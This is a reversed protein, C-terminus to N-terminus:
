HVRMCDPPSPRCFALIDLYVRARLIRSIGRQIHGKSDELRTLADPPTSLQLWTLQTAPAEVNHVPYVVLGVDPRSYDSLDQNVTNTTLVVLDSESFGGMTSITDYSNRLQIAWPLTCTAVHLLEQRILGYMPGLSESEYNSILNALTATFSAYNAYEADVELSPVNLGGFEAPLSLQRKACNLQYHKYTKLFKSIDL